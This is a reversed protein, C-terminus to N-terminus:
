KTGSARQVGWPWDSFASGAPAQNVVSRGSIPVWEAPVPTDARAPLTAPQANVPAAQEGGTAVGGGMGMGIGVGVGGGHSGAGIGINGVVPSGPLGIATGLSIGGGVRGGSGIGLGISLAPTLWAGNSACGTLLASGALAAGLFIRSAPSTMIRDKGTVGAM